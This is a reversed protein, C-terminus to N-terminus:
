PPYRILGGRIIEDDGTARLLHAYAWWTGNQREEVRRLRYFREDIELTIRENWDPKPRCSLVVLDGGPDRIMRDPRAPGFRLLDRSVQLLLRVAQAIRVGLWVLPEGAVERNVGFSTLRVVGVLAVSSLLWTYPSLVWALWIVAGVHGIEPHGALKRPDMEVIQAAAADAMPQFYAMADAVLLAGGTFLEVLGLVASWALPEAGRRVLADREPAPLLAAVLSLLPDPVPM